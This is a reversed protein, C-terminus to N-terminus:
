CNDLIKEIKEVIDEKDFPKSIYDSCGKSLFEEKDGKMAFATMAIIATDKYTKMGRIKKTVDLGSKGKGLNIDMLIAPYNYKEAMEIAKDGNSAYDITCLDKLYRETLIRSALDDEVLLIKPLKPKQVEEVKEKLSKATDSSIKSEQRGYNLAPFKVTFTSGKGVESDVTITGNMIEINKKTITLGLGTGDFTRSIGESAQRFEEFIVELSEKPIGIGTDIIRIVANVREKRNGDMNGDNTILLQDNTIIESDVEVIVGGKETYKIANNILNNLIKNLLSEDLNATVEEDIINTQLYLNKRTSIPHYLEISDYVAFPISVENLCVNVKNSEIASLDLILNLTEMLRNGSSVIMKAMDKQDVAHLESELLKAFGLIGIMPTRMEHSMNALFHGKIKSLKEAEEKAIILEQEAQKRQTIDISYEIMQIVKGNEDFIPFGYVEVIKQNNNKDYHIHEVIVSERTKVVEILPCKDNVGTCPENKNHSLSYCHGTKDSNKGNTAATNALVISYDSVNIVYFPHSLSDIVNNLFENNQKITAEAQKRETIDRFIGMLYKKDGIMIPCSNIDAYFISGDKKRVPLNTALSIEGRIQREFQEIVYPLDKEPHIDPVGINMIEEVTYGLMECIKNNAISFTRSGNEALLMGDSANDFIARFKMEAEKIAEEAQKRETIDQNVGFTRITNGKDDKIIFFRVTIYGITGNPYLIRHELQRNFNPDTTEIAKRTEEGVTQMDDPHVFRRAYESSQMKYGGVQEATVRFIKYFHDNFTFEDKIVDYEWPGLHAIDLANSLQMENKRLAEEALKRETIDKSSGQFGVIQNGKKLLSFSTEFYKISKDKIIAEVPYNLIPKGTKYINFLTLLLKKHDRKPTYDKFNMKLLESKSYGTLDEAVKNVATFNGKIDLTFLFESSYEFLNYYRTKSDKIEEEAQKLETIDLLSAVSKDTGPILDIYLFINKINGETDLFSFEYKNLAKDSEKRRLKHQELMRELDEKVVFDTWKKKNIIEGLKQGALKAFEANALSITGDNELICTASGTNNFVTRYKEQSIRLKEEAVKRETIDRINCQIVDKGNVEYVNSIFEIHIKRGDKTELPLDEYRVYKQQQLELFKDQNAIIDKLFGIEWITKMLIEEETFGLLNILFPNVDVIMATEADLILIGDKASEFLRRYRIESATLAKDALKRETIDQVTGKIATLNSENDYIGQFTSFYYGISGDPRLFKQEYSGADRNEIARQILETDRQNQDPWPSLAMISDIQPTFKKSDLQFINFVEDSWDVKGTAVDWYWNGLKAMQQAELLRKESAILAKEAKKKGAEQEITALAFSIDGALEHFLSEEDKGFVFNTPISVSLIGYIINEFELRFAVTYCDINDHKFQCKACDEITKDIIFIDPQAFATRMCYPLDDININKVQIDDSEDLNSDAFDSLKNNKDITVIRAYDYGRGEVLKNCAEKILVRPNREHTILQNVNRIAKLVSNLHFFQEESKKREISYMISKRLNYTNLNGKNLYDQAGSSIAELSINEDDLGTLIVITASPIEKRLVKFTELGKSDPLGLDLLVIDYKKKKLEDRAESLRSVHLLNCGTEEICEALYERILIADGKNDEVLLINM